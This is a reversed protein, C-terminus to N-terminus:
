LREKEEVRAVGALKSEDIDIGLWRELAAIVLDKRDLDCIKVTHNAGPQVVQLADLGTLPGLAAATWPDDGGYIYIIREGQNRLWPVVKQMVEPRFIMEVGRPAFARYSPEPVAQLLDRLYDFVYPCYGIETYAQYFLPRYYEYDADAYYSPSSVAVLHDFLQQDTADPGPIVDCNGASGYQWFAFPYEVVSYEFAEAESFVSFSYNKQLAHEHLLPLMAARRRLVERQFLRIKERCKATGVQNLFTIFRGDETREMIPAVYALTAEVDDPYYYRYYLATMGGKSAGSSVWKGPLIERLMERIHHQDAAAQATTLYSWDSASPVANPFYRHAMYVQNAQLLAAPESEYNRSVGYGSTYFVNSANEGRYSLYFRQRFDGKAQDCHDLPQNIDVQFAQAYGAPPDIAMAQVGPLQELRELLTLAPEERHCSSLFLLLFLLGAFALKRRM